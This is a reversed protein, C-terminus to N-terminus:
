WCGSFLPYFIGHSLTRQTYVPQNDELCPQPTVIFTFNFTVSSRDSLTSRDHVETFNLSDSHIRGMPWLLSLIMLIETAVLMLIGGGNCLSLSIIISFKDLGPLSRVDTLECPIERSGEVM